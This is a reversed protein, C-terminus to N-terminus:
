ALHRMSPWLSLDLDPVLAALDSVEPEFFAVLARTREDSVPVLPVRTVHVGRRAFLPVVSDNLGLHRYTRALQSRLDAVCREYQLILLQERAFYRCLNVIKTAYRGREAARREADPAYRMMTVDSQYRSIPDRLLMLLRADPAVVALKRAASLDDAYGPTWEGALKGEPRPFWRAYSAADAVTVEGTLRTLYYLEKPHGRTVVDRHRTILQYWWSTGSKHTGVGV